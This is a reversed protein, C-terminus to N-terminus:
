KEPESIIIAGNSEKKAPNNYVWDLIESLKSDKNFLKEVWIVRWSDESVQVTSEYKVLVM